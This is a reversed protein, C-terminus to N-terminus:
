RRWTWTDDMYHSELRDARELEHQSLPMPAFRTGFVAAFSSAVVDCLEMWEPVAGALERITAAATSSAAAQPQSLLDNVPAQSGDLLLSGHQLVSGRECRQASGVLKRGAAMIEGAAPAQFCPELVTRPDRVPADSALWADVGLARVAHLLAENILRYTARPGGTISLPALVCYTLEHDHLVALGGTPRRVVDIGSEIIRGRDYVDSVHQNRGFSLCAPLWRYLRLVPDGGQQVSELLAHDIAMNRAGPQAEADAVLRWSAM